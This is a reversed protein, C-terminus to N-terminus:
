RKPGGYSFEAPIGSTSVVMTHQVQSSPVSINKNKVKEEATVKFKLSLVWGVEGRGLGM